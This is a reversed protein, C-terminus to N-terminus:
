LYFDCATRHAIAIRVSHFDGHDSARTTMTILPLYDPAGSARCWVHAWAPLGPDRTHILSLGFRRLRPVLRSGLGPSMPQRHSNSIIRLAPPAAGFTLGPRFGPNGILILSLGFRWLRPVLRSGLGPPRPQAACFAKTRLSCVANIAIVHRAVHPSRVPMSITRPCLLGFAQGVFSRVMIAGSMKASPTSSAHQGPANASLGESSM